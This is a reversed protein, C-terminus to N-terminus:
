RGRASELVAITKTQDALHLAFDDAAAEAETQCAATCTEVTVAVQRVNRSSTGVLSFETQCAAVRTETTVAMQRCYRCSLGDTVACETQCASHQKQAMVAM